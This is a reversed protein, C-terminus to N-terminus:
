KFRVGRLISTYTSVQLLEEAHYRGVGAGAELQSSGWEWATRRPRPDACVVVSLLANEGRRVVVEAKESQRM